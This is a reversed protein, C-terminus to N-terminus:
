VDSYAPVLADSLVRPGSRRVRYGCRRSAVGEASCVTPSRGVWVTKPGEDGFGLWGCGLTPLDVAELLKCRVLVGARPLVRAEDRVTLQRGSSPLCLCGSTVLLVGPARHAPYCAIGSVKRSTTRGSLV